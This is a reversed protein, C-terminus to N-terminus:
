YVRKGDLILRERIYQGNPTKVIYERGPVRRAGIVIKRDESIVSGKRFGARGAVLILQPDKGQVARPDMDFYGVSFKVLTDGDKALVIFKHEVVTTGKEVQEFPQGPMEVTFRGAQSSFKRFALQDASATRSCLIVFAALLLKSIAKM